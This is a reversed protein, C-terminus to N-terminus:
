ARGAALVFDWAKAFLAPSDLTTAYEACEETTLDRAGGLPAARLIRDATQEAYLVLVCAEQLTRGVTVIGHGAMVVGRAAGMLAAVAEGREPTSISSAHPYLPLGVVLVGQPLVPRLGQGASTLAGLAPTHAHVVAEVDGRARYIAAHLHVENPPRPGAAGTSPMKVLDAASPAARNSGASNILFGTPDRRSAHGNYDTVGARTLFRLAEIIEQGREVSRM